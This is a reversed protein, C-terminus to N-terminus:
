PRNRILERLWKAHAVIERNISAWRGLHALFFHIWHTLVILNSKELELGPFNHYEKIHHVELDFSVGTAECKGGREKIVEKALRQFKPSRAVGGFTPYRHFWSLIYWIFNM